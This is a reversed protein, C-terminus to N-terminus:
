RSQRCRGGARARQLRSLPRRGRTGGPHQRLWRWPEARREQGAGRGWAATRRRHPLPSPVWCLPPPNLCGDGGRGAVAVGISAVFLTGGSPAKALSQNEEGAATFLPHNLRSAQPCLCRWGGPFLLQKRRPTATPYPSVSLTSPACVTETRCGGEGAFFFFYISTLFACTCPGLARSQWVSSPESWPPLKVPHKPSVSRRQSTSPFSSLIVPASRSSRAPLLLPPLLASLLFPFCTKSLIPHTAAGSFFGEQPTPKGRVRRWRGRGAQAWTYAGLRVSTGWLRPPCPGLGCPGGRHGPGATDSPLLYEAVKLAPNRRPNAAAHLASAKANGM